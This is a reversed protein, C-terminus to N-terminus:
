VLKELIREKLLEHFTEEIDEESECYVFDDVTFCLSHESFLGHTETLDWIESSRLVGKEIINVSKTNGLFVLGHLDFIDVIRGDNRKLNIIKNIEQQTFKM